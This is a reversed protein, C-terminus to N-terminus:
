AAKVPDTTAVIYHNLRYVKIEETRQGEGAGITKIGSRCADPIVGLDVLSVEIPENKGVELIRIWGPDKDRSRGLIKFKRLSTESIEVDGIKYKPCKEEYITNTNLARPDRIQNSCRANLEKEDSSTLVLFPYAQRIIMAERDQSYKQTIEFDNM